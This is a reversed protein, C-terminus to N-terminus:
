RITFKQVPLFASSNRYLLTDLIRSKSSMVSTTPWDFFTTGTLKTVRCADRVEFNSQTFPPLGCEVKTITSSMHLLHKVSRTQEGMIASSQNFLAAPRRTLVIASNARLILLIRGDYTSELYACDVKIDTTSVQFQRSSELRSDDKRYQNPSLRNISPSPASSALLKSVTFATPLVSTTPDTLLPRKYLLVCPDGEFLRSSHAFPAHSVIGCASYCSLRYASRLYEISLLPTTSTTEIHPLLLM